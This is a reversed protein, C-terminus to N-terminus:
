FNKHQNNTTLESCTNMMQSAKSSEVGNSLQKWRKWKFDVFTKKIHEDFHSVGFSITCQENSKLKQSKVKSEM